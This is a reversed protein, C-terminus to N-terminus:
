KEESEPALSAIIKLDNYLEPADAKLHLNYNEEFKHRKGFNPDEGFVIVLIVAIIILTLM